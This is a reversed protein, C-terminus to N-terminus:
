CIVDGDTDVTIKSIMKMEDVESFMINEEYTM